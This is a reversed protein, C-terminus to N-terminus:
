PTTVPLQFCESAAATYEAAVWGTLGNFQVQWWSSDALRGIGTMASLYEIETL